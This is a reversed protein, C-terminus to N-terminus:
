NYILGDDGVYLSCEGRAHSADTLRTGVDHPWDGDWFGAGHHNRTLWFDHGARDLDAAIDSVHAKQFQKCDAVIAALTSPSIDGRGYNDELPDGDDDDSSWLACTLYARTFPDLASLIRVYDLFARLDDIDGPELGARQLTREIAPIFERLFEPNDQESAFNYFLHGDNPHNPARTYQLDAGWQAAFTAPNGIRM